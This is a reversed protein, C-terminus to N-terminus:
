EALPLDITFQSGVKEISDVSITGNMLGVIQKTIWLGLGTGIIADTERKRIRYFKEFLHEREKAAMGIGTDKVTIIFNKGKSKARIEVSGSPTYKIANGIINILSQKFRDGDILVDSKAGPELVCFLSLKKEDAQPKLEKVTEEIVPWADTKQIDMKLRGQDIRSVNLFDEILMMLRDTSISIISLYEKIKANPELSQSEEIILSIFGKIATVPTRLEHSAISIFDDKMADVEKIKNYLISYEFLHSNVFLLMVILVVTLILVLYSRILADLLNSSVFDTSFEMVLLAQKDGQLDKLPMAVLWYPSNNKSAPDSIKQALPAGDKWSITYAMSEEEQGVKSKDMSAALKFGDNEPYLIDLLKTEGSYEKWNDIFSQMAEPSGLKDALATNISLGIAVAKDHISQDVTNRFYGSLFWTNFIMAGPIVIMLIVSYVVQKNDQLFKIKSHKTKASM